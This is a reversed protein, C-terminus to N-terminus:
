YPAEGWAEQGILKVFRCPLTAKQPCRDGHREVLYLVQESAGGVPVVLRGADRLQDVLPRPVHPAAATVIIRDYPAHAPLGLSGDGATLTVNRIDLDALRRSAALRLPEIREVSYVHRCLLALVASQYGTGTGIELVTDEPRVALLETMYAVIYPQSITQGFDIPLARDDLANAQEELPLFRERPVTLLANLVREDRIGRARLQTDVMARRRPAWDDHLQTASETM